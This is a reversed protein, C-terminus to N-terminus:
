GEPAETLTWNVIEVLAAGLAEDFAAVIGNMDNSRAQASHSVSINEVVRRESVAVLRADLRISIEPPSAPQDPNPAAAGAYRAQFERLETRLVYDALLGDTDRAVAVRSAAEFAEILLSQVLVPTRDPWAADAYYDLTSATPNLAIRMTDISAPADPIAISLQWPLRPGQQATQIAPQLVYIQPPPPPGIIEGLDSIGCGSLLLSASTGLLFMRRAVVSYSHSM